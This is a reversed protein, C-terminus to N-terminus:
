PSRLCRRSRRISVSARAALRPARSRCSPVFGRFDCQYGDSRWSAELIASWSHKQGVMSSNSCASEAAGSLAAVTARHRRIGGSAARRGHSGRQWHHWRRRWSRNNDIALPSEGDTTTLQWWSHHQWTSDGYSLSSSQNRKARRASQNSLNKIYRPNRRGKRTQLTGRRSTLNKKIIWLIPKSDPRIENENDTPSPHWARLLNLSLFAGSENNGCAAHEFREDIITM